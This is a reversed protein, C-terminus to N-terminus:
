AEAIAVREARCGVREGAAGQESGSACARTSGVAGGSPSGRVVPKGRLELTSWANLPAAASGRRASRRRSRRTHQRRRRAAAARGKAAAPGAARSPRRARARASSRGGRRRPASVKWNKPEPIVTRKKESKKQVLLEAHVRDGGVGDVRAAGDARGHDGDEHLADRAAM